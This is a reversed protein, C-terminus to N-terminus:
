TSAEQDYGFYCAKGFQLPTLSDLILNLCTAEMMLQILGVLLVNESLMEPHPHNCLCMYIATLPYYYKVLHVQAVHKRFKMATVM